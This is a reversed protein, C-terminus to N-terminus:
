IDTGEWGLTVRGQPLVALPLPLVAGVTRSSEAEICCPQDLEQRALLLVASGHPLIVTGQPLVAQRTRYYLEECASNTSLLQIQEIM